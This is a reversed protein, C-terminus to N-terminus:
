FIGPLHEMRAARTNATPFAARRQPASTDSPVHYKQLSHSCVPWSAQSVGTTELSQERLDEQVQPLVVQWIQYSVAAKRWRAARGM